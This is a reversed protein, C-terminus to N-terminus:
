RIENYLQEDGIRITPFRHWFLSRDITQAIVITSFYVIFLLLFYGGNRISIRIEFKRIWLTLIIITISFFLVVAHLYNLGILNAAYEIEGGEGHLFALLSRMIFYFANALIFSSLISWSLTKKKYRLVLIFSLIISIINALPGGASGIGYQRVTIDVLPYEKVLSLGAPIGQLWYFLCHGFEHLFTTLITSAVILMLFHFKYKM